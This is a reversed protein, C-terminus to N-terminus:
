HMQIQKQLESALKAIRSQTEWNKKYKSNTYM